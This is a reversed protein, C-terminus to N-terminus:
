IDDFQLKFKMQSVEDALALLTPPVTLVSRRPPRLIPEVQV